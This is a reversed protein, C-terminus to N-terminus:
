NQSLPSSLRSPASSSPTWYIILADEDGYYNPVVGVIQFGMRAYFTLAGLNSRRVEAFLGKRNPPEMAKLLLERGIGKKRHSPLVALSIIHGEPSFIIYGLISDYKRNASGTYVLFHKPFLSHLHLFTEQDYPSKPFSEQEIKLIADLDSPTFPRIM